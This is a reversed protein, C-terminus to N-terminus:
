SKPAPTPKPVFDFEPKDGITRVVVNEGEDAGVPTTDGPINPVDMLINQLQEAIDKENKQLKSIQVGVERMEDILDQPKEKKKGLERSVENRKARLSDIESITSRRRVDLEAAETVPFVQGRRRASEEVVEPKERILDIDIM